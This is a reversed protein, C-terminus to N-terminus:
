HIFVSDAGRRAVMADIQTQIHGRRQLMVRIAQREIWAGLISALRPEDIAKIRSWLAPDVQALEIKVRPSTHFARSHDILYMRWNGDVLVNGANRDDNGIFADFMMMRVVQANWERTAPKEKEVDKWMRMGELWMIAAGSRGNLTREVVPPVMHLDLLKDLEYAAIESKYSEWFGRYFGPRIPKWALSGCPGGPELWARAPRTVGVPLDEYKVVRATKLFAEIQAERGAFLAEPAPATQGHLSVALTAGLIGLVGVRRPLSVV